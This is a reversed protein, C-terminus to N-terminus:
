PDSQQAEGFESLGTTVSTHANTVPPIPNCATLERFNSLQAQVPAQEFALLSAYFAQGVSFGAALQIGTKPILGFDM